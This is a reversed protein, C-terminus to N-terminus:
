LDVRMESVDEGLGRESVESQGCQLCGAWFLLYVSAKPVRYQNNVLGLILKSNIDVHNLGMGRESIQEFTVKEIFFVKIGQKFNSHVGACAM